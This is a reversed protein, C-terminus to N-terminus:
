RVYIRTIGQWVSHPKAYLVGHKEPEPLHVANSLWTQPEVAVFDKCTDNWVIWYKDHKDAAYVVERGTKRDRLVAEQGGGNALYLADLRQALPYGGEPTCFEQEWESLPSVEGSPLRDVPDDMCLGAIPLHLRVDEAQGNETFPVCFATHYALGFPMTVASNNHLVFRQTLGSESLSCELRFVADIPFSKHLAPDATTAELVVHAGTDDAHQEAVAWAYNHLVGHIHVGNPYNQPFRYTVGDYTFAGGAIRNAPFLVPIGYAYPADLLAQANEPTRLIHLKEGRKTDNYTLEIVNAGLSPVVLARYKGACMRYAQRGDWNVLAVEAQMVDRRGRTGGKPKCANDNM